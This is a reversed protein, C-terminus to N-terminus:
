ALHEVTLVARLFTKAFEGLERASDHIRISIDRTVRNENEVLRGTM